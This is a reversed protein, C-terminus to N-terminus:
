PADTLIAIAQQYDLEEIATQLRQKEGAPLTLSTLYTDLQAGPIFESAHLAALLESHAAPQETASPTADVPSTFQSIKQLTRDLIVVFGAYDEPLSQNGRIALEVQKSAHQLATLGLNASVGKLTHLLTFASDYAQQDMMEQLRDNLDRYEDSFKGLLTIYLDRNGSLQSIGFDTDILPSTPEM